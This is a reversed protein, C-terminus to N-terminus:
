DLDGPIINKGLNSNNSYDINIDVVVVGEYEVAEKMVSMLESTENIRLGKAGFSEAYKVFDVHGLKVGSDRGYKYIEQFSVMNYSHDNWIFHTINCKQEVATALEQGSFLFGGDGSVSIVKKSCPVDQCLSAGIAWPLAVGLTQQGNSFLLSRSQYAYFYRAMYIYVSGIDVAVTTDDSILSRLVKIFHLPHIKDKLSDQISKSPTQISIIEQRLKQLFEPDFSSVKNTGNKIADLTDPISGLLEVTPKYFQDFDCRISDLHILKFKTDKTWQVADYEIPDYGVTIVLDSKALLKDGPQNRFLGVRGYFLHVLERNLCGAGQFTEVVPMPHKQLFSHVCSVTDPDSSRLGLFLVPNKASELMSICSKISKSNAIGYEPAVYSEPPFALVKSHLPGIDMPISVFVAGKPNSEAERFANCFVEAVDDEHNIEIANKVVPRLVDTAKLSQHTRKTAQPRAVSGAIAVIPDSETNATALATVLNTAGPGSTVLCVGPKGTIRGIAGAIFGANQEHRCVVLNVDPHNLLEDFISDIKAGPIGFIHKVGANILSQVVIKACSTQESM